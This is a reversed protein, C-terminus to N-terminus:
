ETYSIGELDLLFRKKELGGAYGTLRGDHGLVRHCPILIGIPNRGVANGVAQASMRPKGLEAGIEAAIAGYTRSEGYPITLLIEWVRRAFPTGEPRLPVPLPGPIEGAFYRDLWLGVQRLLPTDMRIADEPLGAKQGPQFLGTLADGSQILSILGLPSPYESIYAEM